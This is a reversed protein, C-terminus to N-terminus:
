ARALRYFREATGSWVAQAAAPELRQLLQETAAVWAPYDAALNLVPWDSGWMLRQAGFLELVTDVYPLLMETQWGKGAETVLGSLKCCVHPLRALETMGDRWQAFEVHGPGCLVVPKACHDIAIPLAPYREAFRLLYPLHVTKVLADLSLGLHMLTQVAADIPASAIWDSDPLDQLMPRVGKFVPNEALRRLEASASASELDVWGVVGQVCRHQAALALMYDTEAVTPAAQVLVTRSVQQQALLPQLDTPQFDRYIPGLAPTLWGYDPRALTWFHQHADVRTPSANM